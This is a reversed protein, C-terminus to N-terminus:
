SVGTKRVSFIFKSLHKSEFYFLYPLEILVSWIWYHLQEKVASWALMRQLVFIKTSLLIQNVHRLSYYFFGIISHFPSYDCQSSLSQEKPSSPALSSGPLHGISSSFVTNDSICCVGFNSSHCTLNSCLGEMVQLWLHHASLTWCPAVPLSSCSSMSCWSVVVFGGQGEWQM